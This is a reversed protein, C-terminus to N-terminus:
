LRKAGRDTLGIRYAKVNTSDPRAAPRHAQIRCHGRVATLNKAREVGYSGSRGTITRRLRELKGSGALGRGQCKHVRRASRDSHVQQEIVYANSGNGCTNAWGGAQDAPPLTFPIPRVCNPAVVAHQLAVRRERRPQNSLREAKIAVIIPNAESVRRIELELVECDFGPDFPRIRVLCRQIDELIAGHKAIAIATVM